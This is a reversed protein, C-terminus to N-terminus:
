LPRYQFSKNMKKRKHGRNVAKWPNPQSQLHNSHGSGPPQMRPSRSRLTEPRSVKSRPGLIIVDITEATGCAAVTGLQVDAAEHVPVRYRCSRHSRLREQKAPAGGM